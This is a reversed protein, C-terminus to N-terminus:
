MEDRLNLLAVLAVSRPDPAGDKIEHLARAAIELMEAAEWEITDKVAPSDDDDASVRALRRLAEITIRLM